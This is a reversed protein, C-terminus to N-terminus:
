FRLPPFIESISATEGFAWCEKHEGHLRPCQAADAEEHATSLLYCHSTQWGGCSASKSHDAGQANRASWLLWPTLSPSDAHTSPLGSSFLTGNAYLQKRNKDILTGSEPGTVRDWRRSRWGLEIQWIGWSTELLSQIISSGLSSAKSFM